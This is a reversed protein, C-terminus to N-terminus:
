SKPPATEPGDPKKAVGSSAVNLRLGVKVMRGDRMERVVFEIPGRRLRDGVVPRKFYRKLYDELTGQQCAPDSPLGYFRVIEAMSAEANLALEGFFRVSELYAPIRSTAAFWQDLASLDNSRAFLCVHDDIRLPGIAGDASIQHDRIVGALRVTAPLPLDTLAWGAAPSDRAVRYSFIEYELEGPLDLRVRQVLASPTPPVQLRLWRALPAVTWGQIVLSLLVIFFALNFYLRSYELEAMWPFLALIIPVAGRLGVWSIFLQERWQFRFPLLCLFVAVPRAVLILTLSFLVGFLALPPLLERPTILLGLILFMSIQSLWALGDHFRNINEAHRLPRNGLVIGALYVALYGSGDALATAGFILMAGAFALLPYLGVNLDIRNILWLLGWGGGLGIAAGIGMQQFFQLSIKWDLDGGGAALLNVLTLTLFIAMPDNAGSEIQLTADVRQKLRLGQSHLISFVAAADTSGVIAGILMGELWRLDLLWTAALGTLGATIVVGVTALSLAPWLGVRFSSIDTCLGGNFLIVALAVTGIMYSTQVDDFRIGGPGNEGALMGLGLFILLLPLGLRTSIKSALVSLLFLVGILLVLQNTVDM